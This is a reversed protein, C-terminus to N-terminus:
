IGGEFSYVYYEERKMAERFEALKAEDGKFRAEWTERMGENQSRHADAARWKVDNTTTIDVTVVPLDVQPNLWRNKIVHVVPRQDAPMAAVARITAAGIGNHDPHGGYIPHFTIILSPNVEAIIAGVREALQAPDQFEVTKDWIGLFRLDSIGLVAAAGRMEQERLGRLAERTTFTPKGMRRGMEGKTACVYTVPTGAQSHLAITGGSAYTEDDPHALVVLVHREREM